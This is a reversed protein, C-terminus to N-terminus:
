STALSLFGQGHNGASATIMAKHNNDQNMIKNYAGRIKFSRVIQLDERKFYINCYYKKSLRDNKELRTKHIFDCDKMLDYANKFDNLTIDM